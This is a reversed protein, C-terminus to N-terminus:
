ENFEYGLSISSLAREVLRTTRYNVIVVAVKM